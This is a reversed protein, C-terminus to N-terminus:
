VICLVVAYPSLMTNHPQIKRVRDVKINIIEDDNAKLCIEKNVTYFCQLSFEGPHHWLLLSTNEYKWICITSPLWINFCVHVWRSAFDTFDGKLHHRRGLLPAPANFGASNLVRSIHRDCSCCTSSQPAESTELRTTFTVDCRWACPM